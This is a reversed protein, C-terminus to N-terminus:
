AVHKRTLASQIDIVPAMGEGSIERDTRRASACLILAFVVIVLWASLLVLLALLMRPIQEIYRGIPRWSM